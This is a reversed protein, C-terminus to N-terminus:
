FEVITMSELILAVQADTYEKSEITVNEIKADTNANANLIYYPTTINTENKGTKLLAKKESPYFVLMNDGNTKVYPDVGSCLITEEEELDKNYITNLFIFVFKRICKLLCFYAFLICFYHM